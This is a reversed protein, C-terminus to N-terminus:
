RRSKKSSSSMRDIKANLDKIQKNLRANLDKMDEKTAIPNAKMARSMQSHVEAAYKRGAAQYKSIVERAMKEGDKKNLKGEKELKNLANTLAELTISTMGIGFELGKKVNKDM